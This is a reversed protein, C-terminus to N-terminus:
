LVFLPLVSAKVPAARATAEKTKKILPLASLTQRWACNSEAEPDDLVRPIGSRASGPVYGHVDGYRRGGRRRIVVRRQKREPRVFGRVSFEIDAADRDLLHHALVHQHDAVLRQTREALGREGVDIM